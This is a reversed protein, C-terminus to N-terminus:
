YSNSDIAEGFARTLLAAMTPWTISDRMFKVSGDCFLVNSGGDHFSYIAYVNSCNM